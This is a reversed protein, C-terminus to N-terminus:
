PAFAGCGITGGPALPHRGASDRAAGRREAALRWRGRRTGEGGLQIGSYRNRNVIKEFNGWGM